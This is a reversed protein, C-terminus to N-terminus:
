AGAEVSFRRTSLIAASDDRVQVEYRGLELGTRVTMNHKSRGKRVKEYVRQHVPRGNLDMILVTLNSVTREAQLVIFLEERGPHVGVATIFISSSLPKAPRDGSTLLAAVRALAEDVGDELDAAIRDTAAVQQASGLSVTVQPDRIVFRELMSPNSREVLILGALTLSNQDEALRVGTAVTVSIPWQRGQSTVHGFWGSQGYMARVPPLLLALAVEGSTYTSRFGTLSRILDNYAPSLATERLSYEAANFLQRKGQAAEERHRSDATLAAIREVLADRDARPRREPPTELCAALEASFESMEIRRYPDHQTARELLRDLEPAREYELRVALAYAEDDSRHPGPLPLTTGALLVWLTKALSYVDAPGPAASDADERMEPAMYDVPGLRRGHETLPEKRPYRVLGFDGLLWTGDREFLNDPKLDRHWIGSQSLRALTAAVSGLAEIVVRPQPDRGLATRVPTAIPMAYWAMKSLSDPLASDVMPLVGSLAPFQRHFEIEQRFRPLRDRRRLIKVAAHDGIDDVGEWVDGNGGRGLMRVLDWRGVRQQKGGM